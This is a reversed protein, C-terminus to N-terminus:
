RCSDIDVLGLIRGGVRREDEGRRVLRVVLTQDISSNLVALLFAAADLLLGIRGHVAKHTKEM